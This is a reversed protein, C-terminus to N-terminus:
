VLDALLTKASTSRLFAFCVRSVADACKEGFNGWDGNRGRELVMAVTHFIVADGPDDQAAIADVFAALADHLDTGGAQM